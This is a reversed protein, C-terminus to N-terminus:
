TKKLSEVVEEFTIKDLWQYREKTYDGSRPEFQQIFRIMGVIGLEKILADYGRQKIEESNM